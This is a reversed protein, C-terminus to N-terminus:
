VTVPFRPGLGRVLIGKVIPPRNLTLFLTARVLDTTPVLPGGVARLVAVMVVSSCVLVTRIFVKPTLLHVQLKAALPARQLGACPGRLIVWTVFFDDFFDVVVIVVFSIGKDRLELAPLETWIGVERYLM